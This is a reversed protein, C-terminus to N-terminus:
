AVTAVPEEVKVRRSIMMGLFVVGAAALFAAQYSVLAYLAGEILPMIVSALHDISQGMCLSPHLDDRPAIKRLYTTVGILPMNGILMMLLYLGSLVYFHRVTAYGLFALGLGGFGVILAKREGWEDVLHGIRSALLLNLVNSIILLTAVTQVTAGYAQVLAFIAFASAVQKRCGM